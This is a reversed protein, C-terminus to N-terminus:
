AIRLQDDVSHVGPAAWAAQEVAMREAWNDVEGDLSVRGDHISVRIREAEVAAHRRPDFELEDIVNQQLERDNM